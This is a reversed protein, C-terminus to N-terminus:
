LSAPTNVRALHSHQEAIVSVDGHGPPQRHGPRPSGFAERRRVFHDNDSGGTLRAAQEGDSRFISAARSTSGDRASRDQEPIRSHAEAPRVPSPLCSTVSGPLCCLM